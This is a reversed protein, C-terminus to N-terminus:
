SVERPPLLSCGSGQSAIKDSLDVMSRIQSASHNQVM